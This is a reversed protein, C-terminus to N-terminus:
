GPRHPPLGDDPSSLPGSSPRGSREALEADWANARDRDWGESTSLVEGEGSVLVLTPVTEIRYARSTTFGDSDDLVPAGFGAEDLWPRAKVLPDQAVATVTVADGYRRALEGWVPFSLVCVPCSTKFFALLAPGAATLEALDLRERGDGAAPLEFDPAISGPALTM